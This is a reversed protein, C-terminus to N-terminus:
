PETMFVLGRFDQREELLATHSCLSLSRGVALSDVNPPREGHPTKWCLHALFSAEADPGPLPPFETWCWSALWPNDVPLQHPSVWRPGQRSALIM